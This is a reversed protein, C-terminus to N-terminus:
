AVPEQQTICHIGGGGIAISPIAVKAVRRGPFLDEFVERVEDDARIGYEPMVVGGNVIYSNVYSRCFRDNTAEAESAEPITVVRIPCGRADTQGEMADLNSTNIRYWDGEAPGAGEMLVVGPATFAAIGDVHGDTETELANGPLWIVKEVGLMRMLEAEIEDRSWDPNRNSNPFCSETTLLTGEGDVCLGGGEAVLGSHFIPVNAATLIADAARNDGDFPSYKGGWANFEFAVGARRGKGDILFCPGADRSWSDDIPAEILDIDSGLLDHAEDRDDPHVLITVPEFDRVAHAVTAYNRRTEAMDDWVEERCPWMMWTRVHEAWEPPMHFGAEKPPAAGIM